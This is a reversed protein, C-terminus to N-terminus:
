LEINMRCAVLPDGVGHGGRVNCAVIEPHFHAGFGAGLGIVHAKKVDRGHAKSRETCVGNQCEVVTCFQTAKGVVCALAGDRLVVFCM